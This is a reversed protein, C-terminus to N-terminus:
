VFSNNFISLTADTANIITTATINIFYVGCYSTDNSPSFIPYTFECLSISLYISSFTASCSPFFIAKISSFCAGVNLNSNTSLFM